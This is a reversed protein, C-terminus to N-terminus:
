PVQQGVEAADEVGLAAAVAADFALRARASAPAAQLARAADGLEVAGVTACAGRLRHLLAQAHRHDGRALAARLAEHQSPLEATFLQRLRPQWPPPAAESITRPLAGLAGAIAARLRPIAIPKLLVERFGAARLAAAVAPDPDATHALAPTELGQGRLDRLLAAGDGDPLHADLLWAAFGPGAGVTARAARADGVAVVEALGALAEVLFARSVPDDEALLLRPAGSKMTRANM